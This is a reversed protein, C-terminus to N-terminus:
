FGIGPFHFNKLYLLNRIVIRSKWWNASVAGAQPYNEWCWSVPWSGDSLQSSRIFECECDAINRNKPYYISDPSHFFASTTYVTETIWREPNRCIANHVAKQLRQQIESIPFSTAQVKALAAYLEMFCRLNEPAITESSLFTEIANAAIEMGKSYSISHIDSYEIMFGALAATPNWSCEEQQYAHFHRWPAHPYENNEPINSFWCIGNFNKGSALYHLIAASIEQSAVSYPLRRLILCAERTQHPSSSPTWSDPKLAHGFGGDENQYHRLIELISDADGSEFLYRWLALELPRANRYIFTKAKYFVTSSRRDM